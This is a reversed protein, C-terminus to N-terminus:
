DNDIEWDSAATGYNTGNEQQLSFFTFQTLRQLTVEDFYISSLAPLSPELERIDSILMLKEIKDLVEVENNENIYYYYGKAIVNNKDQFLSDIILRVIVSKVGRGDPVLFEGTTKLKLM